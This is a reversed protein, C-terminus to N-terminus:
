RMVIPLLYIIEVAKIGSWYYRIGQYRGGRIGIGIFDAAQLSGLLFHCLIKNIDLSVCLLPIRKLRKTKYQKPSVTNPLSMWKIHYLCHTSTNDLLVRLIFLPPSTLILTKTVINPYLRGQPYIFVNQKEGFAHNCYCCFLVCVCDFMFGDGKQLRKIFSCVYM